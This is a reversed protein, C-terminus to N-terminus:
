ELEENIRETQRDTQPHFLTLLETEIGLIKNLKKTMEATFYLGRDLM